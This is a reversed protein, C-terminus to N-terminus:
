QKALAPPSPQAIDWAEILLALKGEIVSTRNQLDKIDLRLQSIEGHIESRHMGMEDRMETRFADMEARMESRLSDIEGQLDDIRGHISNNLLISATIISIIVGLFGITNSM